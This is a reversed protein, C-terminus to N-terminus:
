SNLFKGDQYWYYNVDECTFYTTYQIDCNYCVYDGDVSSSIYVRENANELSKVRLDKENLTKYFDFYIKEINNITSTLLDINEQMQGTCHDYCGNERIDVLNEYSSKLEGLIEKDTM